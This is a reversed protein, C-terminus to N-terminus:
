FYFSFKATRSSAFQRTNYANFLIEFKMPCNLLASFKDLGLSIQLKGVFNPNQLPDDGQLLRCFRGIHHCCTSFIM